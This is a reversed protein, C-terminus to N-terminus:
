FTNTKSNDSLYEVKFTEKLEFSRIAKKLM